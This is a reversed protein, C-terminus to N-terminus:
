RYDIQEVYQGDEDTIWRITPEPDLGQAWIRPPMGDKEPELLKFMHFEGDIEYGYLSPDSSSLEHTVDHFQRILRFSSRQLVQKLEDIDEPMPVGQSAMWRLGSALFSMRMTAMTVPDPEQSEVYRVWRKSMDALNNTGFAMRTAEASTKGRSIQFLYTAFAKKYRENDGHILFYVMSWSQAYLLGAAKPDRRLTESWQQDTMNLIFPLNYAKNQEIAHQVVSLRYEDSLGTRLKKNVIIGDEFYQALGENVWIPLNPGLYNWAFQHFGEHQLVEFVEDRGRDGVWTALGQIDRQVFFMGGSNTADIGYQGLFSQYQERTQFLYLPMQGTRRSRYDKFRQRYTNFVSDMHGGFYRLTERDQITTHITYQRSKVVYMRQTEAAESVPTATMSLMVMLILLSLGCWRCSRYKLWHTM